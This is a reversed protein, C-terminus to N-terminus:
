QDQCVAPAHRSCTREHNLDTPVRFKKLGTVQNFVDFGDFSDSQISGIAHAGYGSKLPTQGQQDLPAHWFVSFSERFGYDRPAEPVFFARM